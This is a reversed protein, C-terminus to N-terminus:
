CTTTGDGNVKIGTASSANPIVYVEFRKGNFMGDSDMCINAPAQLRAVSVMLAVPQNASSEDVFTRISGTVPSRVILITTATPTKNIKQMAAGWEITYTQKDFDTLTLESNTLTDIDGSGGVVNAKGIVTQVTVTKDSLSIYKGVVVCETAGRSIGGTGDAVPGTVANCSWGSDRDNRVSTVDSYQQQLFNSLSNVSDRYRQQSISAGAGVLVAITLAGSIALFLMTEIITFGHKNSTGM